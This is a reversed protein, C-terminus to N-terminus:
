QLCLAYAIAPVSGTDGGAPNLAVIEWGTFGEPDKAASPVSGDALIPYSGHLLFGASNSLLRGGGGVATEGPDCQVSVPGGDGDGFTTVDQRVVVRGLAGHGVAGPALETPTVAGNAINQTAVAGNALDNTKVQGDKIQKSKVSNKKLHVAAYAGGGLALFVAVTAMVNAYTLKGRIRSKMAGTREM